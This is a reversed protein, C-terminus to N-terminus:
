KGIEIIQKIMTALNVGIKMKDKSTIKNNPGDPRTKIYLFATVLGLILGGLGGVILINNKWRSTEDM